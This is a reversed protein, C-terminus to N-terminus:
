YGIENPEDWAFQSWVKKPIEFRPIDIDNKCRWAKQYMANRERWKIYYDPDKPKSM